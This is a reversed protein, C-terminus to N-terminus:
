RAHLEDTGFQVRSCTLREGDVVPSPELVYVVAKHRDVLYSYSVLQNLTALQVRCCCTTHPMLYVRSSHVRM